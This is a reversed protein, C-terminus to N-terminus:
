GRSKALERRAPACERRVEPVGKSLAEILAARDQDNLAFSFESLQGDDFITLRTNLRNGDPDNTTAYEEVHFTWTSGQYEKSDPARHASM